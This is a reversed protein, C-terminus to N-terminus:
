EGKAVAELVELEELVDAVGLVDDFKEMLRRALKRASISADAKGREYGEKYGADYGKNFVERFLDEDNFDEHLKSENM